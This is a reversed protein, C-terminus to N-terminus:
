QGPARGAKIDNIATDGRWIGVRMGWDWRAWVRAWGIHIEAGRKGGKRDM